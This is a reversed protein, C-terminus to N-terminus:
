LHLAPDHVERVELVPAPQQGEGEFPRSLFSCRHAVGTSVLQSPWRRGVLFSTAPAFKKMWM